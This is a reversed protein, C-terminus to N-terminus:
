PIAAIAEIGILVDRVWLTSVGVVTNAPPDARDGWWSRFPAFAALLDQGAVLYITWAVLHEKAAGAAALCRDINALTRTTQAAVDGVGVVTGTEGDTPHQLGIYVTKAVDSAVVVQSFAPNVHLGEPNIHEISGSV